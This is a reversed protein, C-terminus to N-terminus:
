ENCAMFYLGTTCFSDRGVMMLSCLSSCVSFLLVRKRLTARNLEVGARNTPVRVGSSAASVCCHLLAAWRKTIIFAQKLAKPSYHVQDTRKKQRCRFPHPALYIVCANFPVSTSGYQLPISRTGDLGAPKLSQKCAHQIPLGSRM